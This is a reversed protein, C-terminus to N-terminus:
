GARQRKLRLSTKRGVWDRLAKLNARFAGQIAPASGAPTFGTAEAGTLTGVLLLSGALLLGRCWGISTRWSPPM